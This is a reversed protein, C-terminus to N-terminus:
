SVGRLPRTMGTQKQVLIIEEEFKKFIVEIEKKLKKTKFAWLLADLQGLLLLYEVNEEKTLKDNFAQPVSHESLVQLEVLRRGKIQIWTKLIQNM